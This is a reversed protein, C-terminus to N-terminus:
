HSHSSLRSLLLGVGLAVGISAIPHRRVCERGAEMWREQAALLEQSTDGARRVASSMTDAVRDVAEHAKESAHEIGAAAGQAAREAAIESQTPTPSIIQM